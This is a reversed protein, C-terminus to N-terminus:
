PGSCHPTVTQHGGSSSLEGKGYALTLAAQPILMQSAEDLAMWDFHSPFHGNRSDFLNYLGYGTAGLILHRCSFIDEPDHTTMVSFPDNDKGPEHPSGWKILKAPFGHLKFQKLLRSVKM